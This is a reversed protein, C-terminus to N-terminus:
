AGGIFDFLVFFAVIEIIDFLTNKIYDTSSINAVQVYDIYQTWCSGWVKLVTVFRQQNSIFESNMHLNSPYRVKNPFRLITFLCSHRSFHECFTNMKEAYLHM